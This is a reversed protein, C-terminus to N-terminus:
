DTLIMRKVDVEKGGALLSYLYMGPKFSSAKITVSGKGAKLNSYTKLQVGQLDYIILQAGQAAEPLYYHIETTESFPNPFNQQLVAGTTIAEVGESSSQSTRSRPTALRQELSAMKKALEEMKSNQEKLAEILIPVVGVYNVSLFGDKEESVLEPLIERVQQASLGFQKGKPFDRDAFEANDAKFQYTIGELEGILTMAEEIANMGKKFRADSATFYTVAQISGNVDLEHNPNNKGIGVRGSTKVTVATENNVNRFQAINAAGAGSRIRFFNGEANTRILAGSDALIGFGNDLYLNGEAVDLKARPSNTGVGFRGNSKFVATTENASNRFQVINSSTAGSRIRFFSGDANTRILAGSDAMIGFGNDLRLNGGSIDLKAKPSNTGVGVRGNARIAVSLQNNANRFNAISGTTAGSKVIFTRGNSSTTFSAGSDSVIGFENDFRLNGGSIDLKETPSNTGIGVNGSNYVIGNADDEWQSLGLIGTLQSGDGILSDAKLNGAIDLKELPTDTGIGVNGGIIVDPDSVDAGGESDKFFFTNDRYGIFDESTLSHSFALYSDSAFFSTDPNHVSADGLKIGGKVSLTAFADSAGIGVNGSDYVIGNSDDLWQSLGLIGTLQSGDGILSDAKVNGAIDLKELPTDTGIGVNGGIIVDPDSVDAGGESDKFFFTNDRYGIFDESTLSHSFALYSDSAFFSTDPNHVSADGLKIGGKVSLTAFADSAGIGVNGSDYVIGNSDDLWQSLGLIGTLQSGDGILSDAKVNGAIDLKELPTDTGIGVNGSDSVFLFQAHSVTSKLTVLSFVLVLIKLSRLRIAKRRKEM